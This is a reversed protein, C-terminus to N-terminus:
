GDRLYRGTLTVFVDELTAHRTSLRALAMGRSQVLATLNPVARQPESVTLAWVGDASTRVGTVSPLARVDTESL